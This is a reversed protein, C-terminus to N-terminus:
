PVIEDGAELGSLVEVLTSDTREITSLPRGLRVWRLVVAGGMLVRVGTLQGRRVIASAPVAIGEHRGAPILATVALGTRWAPPVTVRVEVTRTAPDAARAIVRVPLTATGGDQDVIPIGQGSRLGAALDAPVALVVDRPGADEVVVLPVGPAALDGPDVSRSAVVGAFPATLTAYGAATAVDALSAEAMALQAEAQALGLQAQDRQVRAVADQSLLTDMRAAQRAAEDRAALAADRAATTRSRSAAVDEMGLRVLVQGARVPTGADVTVSTVRAMLRTAIEARRRAAVTGEVPVSTALSEARLTRTPPLVAKAPFAAQGRGCAAVALVLAPLVLRSKM